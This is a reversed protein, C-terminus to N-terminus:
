PREGAGPRRVLPIGTSNGWQHRSLLILHLLIKMELSASLLGDILFSTM